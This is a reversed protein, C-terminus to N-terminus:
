KEEFQVKLVQLVKEIPNLLTGEDSGAFLLGVAQNNEDLVLSGSDGGESLKSTFIQNVFRLIRGQGYNVETTVNIARIQGETLGTTRGSKKVTMGVVPETVGAVAGIELIEPAIDEKKIPRALACDVENEGPSEDLTYYRVLKALLNNSSTGGDVPGPQYISDGIKARGDRGNSSNALIHNNSLIFPEGTSKDYVVAGFTGASVSYHGISVGPVAPRIRSTRQVDFIFDFLQESELLAEESQAQFEGVEIIDTKLGNISPQVQQEQPLQDLPLKKKVLVIIAKDQTQVGGVEKLGIGVGVVNPLALLEQEIKKDIM